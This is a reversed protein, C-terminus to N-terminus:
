SLKATQPGASTSKMLSPESLAFYQITNATGSSLKWFREGTPATGLFGNAGLFKLDFVQSWIRSYFTIISTKVKYAGPIEELHSLFESATLPQPPNAFPKM